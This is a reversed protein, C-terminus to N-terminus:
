IKKPAFQGSFIAEVPPELIFLVRETGLKKKWQNVRQRTVGFEAAIVPGPTISNFMEILKNFRDFGYTKIINRAVRESSTLKEIMINILVM